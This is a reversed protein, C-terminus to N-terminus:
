RRPCPCTLARECATGNARCHHIADILAQADCFGGAKTVLPLRREGGVAIGMPMGPGVEEALATAGVGFAQLM